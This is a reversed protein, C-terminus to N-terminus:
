IFPLGVIDREGYEDTTLTGGKGYRNAVSAGAVAVGAAVKRKGGYMDNSFYTQSKELFNQDRMLYGKKLQKMSDAYASGSSKIDRIMASKQKDSMSSLDYNKGLIDLDEINWNEKIDYAATLHDKVKRRSYTTLEDAMDGNMHQKIQKFEGSNPILGELLSSSKMRSGVLNIAGGIHGGATADIESLKSVAKDTFEKTNSVIKNKLVRKKAAADLLFKGNATNGGFQRVTPVKRM